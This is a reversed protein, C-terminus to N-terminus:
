FQRITRLYIFLCTITHVAVTAVSSAALLEASGIHGAVIALVIQIASSALFAKAVAAVHNRMMLLVSFTGLVMNLVQGLLMIRLLDQADSFDRGFISLAVPAFFFLIAIVPLGVLTLSRVAKKVLLRIEASSASAYMHAYTTTASVMILQVVAVLRACLAFNASDAPSLLAGAILAPAWQEITNSIGIAAFWTTETSRHDNVCDSAKGKQRSSTLFLVAASFLWGAAYAVSFTVISLPLGVLWAAGLVFLSMCAPVPSALLTGRRILGCGIAASSGLITLTIGFIAPIAITLALFNERWDLIRDLWAGYGLLLLGFLLSSIFLYPAYKRLVLSAALLPQHTQALQAGAKIFGKDLGARAAVALFSTVAVLWFMRGADEVELVRAILLSFVFTAAAGVLRLGTIGLLKRVLSKSHLSTM